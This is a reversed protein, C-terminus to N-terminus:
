ILKFDVFRYCENKAVVVEGMDLGKKGNNCFLLASFQM